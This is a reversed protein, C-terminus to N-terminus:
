LYNLYSLFIFLVKEDYIEVYQVSIGVHVQVSALRQKANLIDALARQVM